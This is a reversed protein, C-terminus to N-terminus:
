ELGIEVLKLGLGACVLCFAQQAGDGLGGHFPLWPVLQFVQGLHLVHRPLGGQGAQHHYGARVPVEALADLLVQQPPGLLAVVGAGGRLSM